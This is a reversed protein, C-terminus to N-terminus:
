SVALLVAHGGPAGGLAVQKERVPVTLSAFNPETVIPGVTSGSTVAALGAHPLGATYVARIRAAPPVIVTVSVPGLSHRDLVEATGLCKVTTLPVPSYSWAAPLPM